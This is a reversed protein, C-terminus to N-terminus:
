WLTVVRMSFQLTLQSESVRLCSWNSSRGGEGNGAFIYFYPFKKFKGRVIEISGRTEGRELGCIVSFM